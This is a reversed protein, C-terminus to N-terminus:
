RRRQWINESDHSGWEWKRHLCILSASRTTDTADKVKLEIPYIHDVIV